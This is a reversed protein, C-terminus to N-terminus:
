YVANLMRRHVESTQRSRTAGIEENKAKKEEKKLFLCRIQNPDFYGSLYSKCM